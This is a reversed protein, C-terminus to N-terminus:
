GGVCDDRGDCLQYKNLCKGDE